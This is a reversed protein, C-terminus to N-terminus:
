RGPVAHARIAERHPEEEIERAAAEAPEEGDEILGAPLEWNWVGPVFRHRWALLVHEAADDLVVAMAASPLTVTHHEFRDGSPQSIDAMGVTVWRSEYIPREGHVVWRQAEDDPRTM